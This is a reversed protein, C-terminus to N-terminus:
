GVLALATQPRISGSGEGKHAARVAGKGPLIEQWRCAVRISVMNLHRALDLIVM